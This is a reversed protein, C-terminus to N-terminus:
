QTKKMDRRKRSTLANLFSDFNTYQYNHWQFQVAYRTLLGSHNALLAQTLSNTFLWHCSSVAEEGMSQVTQSILALLADSFPAKEHTLIRSGSVPTFPIAAVWKPYYPIGHQHYANAWSHDFVYEGYSHTKLYGPIIAIVTSEVSSPCADKNIAAQDTTQAQEIVLHQPFWGSAEDCCASQELANLFDYRLFPGEGEALADWTAQPVDSVASVVKVKYEM